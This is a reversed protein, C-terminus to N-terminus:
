QFPWHHGYPTPAHQRALGIPNTQTQLYIFFNLRRGRDFDLFTGTARKETLGLQDM